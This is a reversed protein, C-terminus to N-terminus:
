MYNGKHRELFVQQQAAVGHDTVLSNRALRSYRLGGLSLPKASSRLRVCNLMGGANVLRTIFVSLVREAPM